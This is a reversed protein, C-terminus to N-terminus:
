SSAVEAATSQGSPPPPGAEVVLHSAGLTVRDGPLLAHRAIYEDNVITGSTSGADVLELVGHTREIRAHLGSVHPDRLVFSARAPDRGITVGEALELVAGSQEGTVVVLQFAGSAAVAAGGGAGAPAASSAPRAAARGAGVLHPHERQVAMLSQEVLQRDDPLLEFTLTKVFLDRAREAAQAVTLGRAELAVRAAKPPLTLPDGTEAFGWGRSRAQLDEDTWPEADGALTLMRWTTAAAFWSRPDDPRLELMREAASLAGRLRPPNERVCFTCLAYQYAWEEPERRAAKDLDSIARYLAWKRTELWVANPLLAGQVKAWEDPTLETLRAQPKRRPQMHLRALTDRLRDRASM